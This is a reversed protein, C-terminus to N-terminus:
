TLPSSRPIYSPNLRRSFQRLIATIVGLSVGTILIEASFLKLYEGSTYAAAPSSTFVATLLYTTLYSLRGLGLGILAASGLSLPVAAAFIRKGIWQYILLGLLLAATQAGYLNSNFSEATLSSILLLWLASRRSELSILAAALFFLNLTVWPFPLWLSLGFQSIIIM